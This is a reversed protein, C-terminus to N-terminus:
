QLVTGPPITCDEAAARALAQRQGHAVLLDAGAPPGLTVPSNATRSKISARHEACLPLPGCDDYVHGSSPIDYASCLVCATM